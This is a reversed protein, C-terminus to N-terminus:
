NHLRLKFSDDDRKNTRKYAEAFSYPVFKRDDGESDNLHIWGDYHLVYFMFLGGALTGRPPCLREV